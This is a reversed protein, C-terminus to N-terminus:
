LYSPWTQRGELQSIRAVEEWTSFLFKSKCEFLVVESEFDNQNTNTYELKFRKPHLSVMEKLKKFTEVRTNESRIRSKLNNLFEHLRLLDKVVNKSDNEIKM